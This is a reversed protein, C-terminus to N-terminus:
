EDGPSLENDHIVTGTKKDTKKKLYKSFEKIYNNLLRSLNAGQVTRNEM